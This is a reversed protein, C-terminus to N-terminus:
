CEGSKEYRKISKYAPMSGFEFKARLVNNRPDLEEGRGDSQRVGNKKM